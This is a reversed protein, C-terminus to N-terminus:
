ANDKLKSIIQEQAKLGAAKTSEIIHSYINLTTSQQAHGLIGSVTSIPINSEILYTALTHRLTHFNKKPFDPYKKKLSALWSDPANIGMIKGNPRTFVFGEDHWKDGLKLKMENQEARLSKLIPILMNPLELKRISSKNKTDDIHTGKGKEITAARKVEFYHKDFNIDEWKLGIIESRRLGCLIAFYFIAQYCTKENSVINMIYKLEEPTYVNKIVSKYKPTDIKRCPNENMYGWKVAKSFMSSLLSYAGKKTRASDTISNLIKTILGPSRELTKLNAKEFPRIRLWIVDYFEKTRVRLDPIVHNERWETHLEGLTKPTRIAKENLIKDRENYFEMLKKEADRDSQAKVTRSVQIRKGFEDFGLSLRLFYKGNGLNKVSGIKSM